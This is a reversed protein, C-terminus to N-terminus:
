GRKRPMNLDSVVKTDVIRYKKSSRRIADTFRVSFPLVGRTTKSFRRGIIQALERKDVGKEKVVSIDMSYDEHQLFYIDEIGKIEVPYM